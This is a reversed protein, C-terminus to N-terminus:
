RLQSREGDDGRRVDEGFHGLGVGPGAVNPGEVHGILDKLKLAM